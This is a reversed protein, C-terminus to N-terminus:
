LFLASSPQLEYFLLHLFSGNEGLNLWNECALEDHYFGSCLLMKIVSGARKKEGVSYLWYVLTKCYGFPLLHGCRIMYEVIKVAEGYKQLKCCCNVFAIFVMDNPIIGEKFMQDLVRKAIELNGVGCIELILKEYRQACGHDVMENFVRFAAEVHHRRCHGLVLSTFTVHDPALGAQIMKCLYQRSEVVYGLKCYSEIMLNPTYTGRSSVMGKELLESYVKKMEVVVDYRALLDLLAHYCKPTLQSKFRRSFDAVLMSEKVTDCMKTMSIFIKPVHCSIGHSTLVHLVSAHCSVTDKFNPNLSLSSLSSVDVPTAYQLFSVLSPNNQWRLGSFISRFSIPTNVPKVHSSIKHSPNSSLNLNKQRYFESLASILRECTASKVSTSFFQRRLPM